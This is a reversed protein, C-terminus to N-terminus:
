EDDLITLTTLTTVRNTGLTATASSLMVVV